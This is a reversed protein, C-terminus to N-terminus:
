GEQEITKVLVQVSDDFLWVNFQRIKIVHWIFFHSALAPSIMFGSIVRDNNIQELAL